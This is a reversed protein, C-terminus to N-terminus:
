GKTVILLWNIQVILSVSLAKLIKCILTLIKKTMEMRVIALNEPMNWLIGLCVRGLWCLHNRIVAHSETVVIIISIIKVWARQLTCTTIDNIVTKISQPQQTKLWTAAVQVLEEDAKVEDHTKDDRHDWNKRFNLFTIKQKYWLKLEKKHKGSPNQNENVCFSSYHWMDPHEIPM